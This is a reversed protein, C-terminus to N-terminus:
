KQMETEHIPDAWSSSSFFNLIDSFGFVGARLSIYIIIKPLHGFGDVRSTVGMNKRSM